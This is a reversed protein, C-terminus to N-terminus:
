HRLKHTNTEQESSFRMRGCSHLINARAIAFQISDFAIQVVNVKIVHRLTYIMSDKVVNM